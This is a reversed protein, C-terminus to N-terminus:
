IKNENDGTVHLPEMDINRYIIDPFDLIEDVLPKNIPESHTNPYRFESLVCELHRDTTLPVIGQSATPLKGYYEVPRHKM